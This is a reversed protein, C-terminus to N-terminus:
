VKAGIHLLILMGKDIHNEISTIENERVFQKTTLGDVPVLTEDLENSSKHRTFIHGKKAVVSQEWATQLLDEFLRTWLKTNFLTKKLRTFAPLM